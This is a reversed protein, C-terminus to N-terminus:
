KSLKKILVDEKIWESALIILSPKYADLDNVLNQISDLKIVKGHIRDSYDPSSLDIFGNTDECIQLVCHEPSTM